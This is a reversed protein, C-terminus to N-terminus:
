ASANDLDLYGTDVATAFTISDNLYFEIAIDLGAKSANGFEKKPFPTVMVSARYGAKAGYWRGFNDVFCLQYRKHILLQRLKDIETDNLYPLYSLAKNLSWTTAFDMIPLPSIIDNFIAKVPYKTANYQQKTIDLGLFKKNKEEEDDDGLLSSAIMDYLNRIGYGLAQYATLEAALGALSRAALSRDEKSATKSTVTM